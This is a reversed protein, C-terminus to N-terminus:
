AADRFYYRLLGGRRERCKIEGDERGARELAVQHVDEVDNAAKPRWRTRSWTRQPTASPKIRFGAGWIRWRTESGITDGRPIRVRSGCFSILSRKRWVRGDSRGASGSLNDEGDGGDITDQGADTAGGEMTDNGGEGQLMAPLLWLPPDDGTGGVLSTPMLLRPSPIVTAAASCTMERMASSRTPM